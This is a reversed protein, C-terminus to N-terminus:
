GLAARLEKVLQTVDALAKARDTAAAELKKVVASGVIVGDAIDKLDRIHEPKSVGFGVCLPLDTM